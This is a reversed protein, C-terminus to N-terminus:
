KLRTDIWGEAGGRAIVYLVFTSGGATLSPILKNTANLSTLFTGAGLFVGGIVARQLAIRWTVDPTQTEPGGM